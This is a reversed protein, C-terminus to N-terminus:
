ESSHWASMLAVAAAPDMVSSLMGSRSCLSWACCSCPHAHACSVTCPEHLSLLPLHRGQLPGGGERRHLRGAGQQPDHAPCRLSAVKEDLEKPLLYVDNKYGKNEGM